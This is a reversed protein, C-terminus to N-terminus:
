PMRFGLLYVSQLILQFTKAIKSLPPFINIQPTVNSPEKKAQLAPKNRVINSM